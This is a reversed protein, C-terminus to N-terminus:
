DRNPKSSDAERDSERELGALLRLMRILLPAALLVILGGILAIEWWGITIVPRCALTSLLLVLVPWHLTPRIPKMRMM